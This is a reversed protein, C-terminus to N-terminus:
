THTQLSLLSSFVELDHAEWGSYHPNMINAIDGPEPSSIAVQRFNIPQNIKSFFINQCPSVYPVLSRPTTYRSKVTNESERFM